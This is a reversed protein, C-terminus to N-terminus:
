AYDRSVFLIKRSLQRMAGIVDKNRMSYILPNQMQPVVTYVVSAVTTSQYSCTMAQSIYVGFGMEYFLCMVLLHSSCTSFAKASVGAKPTRLVSVIIPSYSFLFGCSPLRELLSMAAYILFNNLLMDSCALRLVQIVECFFLPVHPTTCFTFPLVKLSHLLADGLGLLLSCLLLLLFFRRGHHGPPRRGHSSVTIMEECSRLGSYPDLPIFPEECM